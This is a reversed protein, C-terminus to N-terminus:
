VSGDDNPVGLFNLCRRRREFVNGMVNAGITVSRCDNFVVTVIVHRVGNMCAWCEGM